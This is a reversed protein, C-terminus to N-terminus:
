PRLYEPVNKKENDAIRDWLLCVRQKLLPFIKMKKIWEEGLNDMNTHCDGCLYVINDEDQAVSPCGGNERKPLIHAVVAAGNIVLTGLLPKNCNTCLRPAKMIMRRFWDGRGPTKNGINKQKGASNGNMKQNFRYNMYDSRM